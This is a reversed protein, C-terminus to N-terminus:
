VSYNGKQVLQLISTNERIMKTKNKIKILNELLEFNRVSSECKVSQM